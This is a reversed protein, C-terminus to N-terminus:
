LKRDFHYESYPHESTITLVENQINESSLMNSKDKLDERIQQLSDEQRKFIEDAKERSVELENALLDIM